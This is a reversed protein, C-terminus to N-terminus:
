SPQGADIRVQSIEEATDLDGFPGSLFGNGCNECQRPGEDLDDPWPQVHACSDCVYYGTM